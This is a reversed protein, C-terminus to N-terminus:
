TAPGGGEPVCGAPDGGEHAGKSSILAPCHGCGSELLLSTCTEGEKSSSPTLALNGQQPAIGGTTGGEYPPVRMIAEGSTPVGRLSERFDCILAPKRSRLLTLRTALCNM